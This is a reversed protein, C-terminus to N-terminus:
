PFVFRFDLSPPKTLKVLFTQEWMTGGITGWKYGGHQVMEKISDFPKKSRTVTLYAILNGCYTGMTILGLLAWASFLTRGTVSKPLHVYHM